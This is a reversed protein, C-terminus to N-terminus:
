SGRVGEGSFPFASPFLVPRWFPFFESLLAGMIDLCPNENPKDPRRIRLRTLPPLAMAKKPPM